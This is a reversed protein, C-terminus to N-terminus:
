WERTRDKGGSFLFLFFLGLDDLFFTMMHRGCKYRCLDHPGAGALGVDGRAGGVGWM